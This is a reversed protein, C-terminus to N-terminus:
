FSSWYAYLSNFVRKTDNKGKEGNTNNALISAIALCLWHIEADNEGM